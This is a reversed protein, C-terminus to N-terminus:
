TSTSGVFEEAAAQRILSAMVEARSARSYRYLDVPRTRTEGQERWQQYLEVLSDAVDGENDCLYGTGTCRIIRELTGHDNVVVLIPRRLPLYDYVKTCSGDVERGALVLLVSARALERMLQGYELEGCDILRDRVREPMKVAGFQDAAKGYLRIRCRADPARELFENVGRLFIDLRQFKYVQGAYAIVFTSREPEEELAAAAAESDFGNPVLHGTSATVSEIDARVPASVTTFCSSTSVIRRELRRHVTKLLLRWVAGAERLGNNTSWGDRYDAIWPVRHRASLAAAYRFLVFPEGTALIADFQERALLEDASEYLGALEDGARTYFPSISFYLSLSKRLLLFRKSEPSFLRDRLNPRADCYTVNPLAPTGDSTRLCVVWPEIGSDPLYKYWGYPRQAGATRTPPFDKALILVRLRRRM